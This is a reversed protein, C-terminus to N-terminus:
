FSRVVRVRPSEGGVGERAAQRDTEPRGVHLHDGRGSRRSGAASQHIERVGSSRTRVSACVPSAASATRATTGPWVVLAKGVRADRPASTVSTARARSSRPPHEGQGRLAFLRGRRPVGFQRQALAHPFDAIPDTMTMAKEEKGAPDESRGATRRCTGDRGCASEACASSATCPTRVDASKNCRTYARM